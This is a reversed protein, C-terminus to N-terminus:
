WGGHGGGPMLAAIGRSNSWLARRRLEAATPHAPDAFVPATMSRLGDRGLGATLLDDSDRHTTVRVSSVRMAASAEQRPGTACGALGLALLLCSLVAPGRATGAHSAPLRPMMTM